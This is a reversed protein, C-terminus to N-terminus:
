ATYREGANKKKVYAGRKTHKSSSVGFIRESGSLICATAVSLVNAHIFFLKIEGQSASNWQLFDQKEVDKSTYMKMYRIDIVLLM